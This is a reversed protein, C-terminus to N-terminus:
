TGKSQAARQLKRYQRIFFVPSLRDCSMQTDAEWVNSHNWRNWGPLPFVLEGRGTLIVKNSKLSLDLATVDWAAYKDWGIQSMHERFLERIEEQEMDRCNLEHYCLLFLRGADQELLCRDYQYCFLYIGILMVSMVLPFVLAAEVAFYANCKTDTGSLRLQKM